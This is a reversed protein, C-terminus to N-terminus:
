RNQRIRNFLEIVEQMDDPDTDLATRGTQPSFTKSTYEEQETEAESVGTIEITKEKTCQKSKIAEFVTISQSRTGTPSPQFMLSREGESPGTVPSRQPDEGEKITTIAHEHEGFNPEELQELKSPSERDTFDLSTKDINRKSNRDMSFDTPESEQEVSLNNLRMLQPMHKIIFDVDAESFLSIQMDKLNPM